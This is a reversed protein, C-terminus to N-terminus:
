SDQRETRDTTSSDEDGHSQSTDHDHGNVHSHSHDGDVFESADREGSAFERIRDRVADTDVFEEEIVLQELARLWQEYYVSESSSTDGDAPNEIERVLREQFEQWSYEGRYHDSLAVAIAFSRAQWPAEFTPEQDGPLTVRQSSESSAENDTM